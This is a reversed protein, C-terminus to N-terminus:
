LQLQNGKKILIEEILNQTNFGQTENLRKLKDFHYKFCKNSKNQRTDDWFTSTQYKYYEETKTNDIDYFVVWKWQHLLEDIFQTKDCDIFDQLTVIGQLRYKSWNTQKIEMRLMEDNLKFQKGKNYIKLIRTSHKFQTYKGEIKCDIGVTKNVSKHQILRDIIYNSDKPPTINYGWELHLLYLNEPRINLRERLRKLAEKLRGKSLDNYNHHGDNYFAHLSGSFEIRKNNEFVKISLNMFTYITKSLLEGKFISKPNVLLPNESFDEPTMGRVEAKIFDVPVYDFSQTYM